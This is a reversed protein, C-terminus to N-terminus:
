DVEEFDISVYDKYSDNLLKMGILYTQFIIQTTELQKNSINDKLLVHMFGEEDIINYYISSEKINAVEIISNLTTYGLISAGACVIDQGYPRYDAHGSMEYGYIIDDKKFLKVNIM